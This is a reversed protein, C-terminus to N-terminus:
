TGLVKTVVAERAFLPGNKCVVLKDGSQLAPKERLEAIPILEASVENVAAAVKQKNAM